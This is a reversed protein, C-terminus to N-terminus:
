PELTDRAKQHNNWIDNSQKSTWTKLKDLEEAVDDKLDASDELSDRYERIAYELTKEMSKLGTLISSFRERFKVSEARFKQTLAEKKPDRPM